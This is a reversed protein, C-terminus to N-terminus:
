RLPKRFYVIRETESFGWGFHAAHSLSNDIAADSGLERYARPWSSKSM